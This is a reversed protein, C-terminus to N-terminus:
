KPVAPLEKVPLFQMVDIRLFVQLEEDGLVPQLIRSSDVKTAAPAAPTAPAAPATAPAPTPATLSPEAKIEPKGDM